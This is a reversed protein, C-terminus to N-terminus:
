QEAAAAAAVPAFSFRHFFPIPGLNALADMHKKTGYGKNQAFGYGPFEEDAQTMQFDRCVKALISAVAISLMTDDGKIVTRVHIIKSKVVENTVFPFPDADGDVLFVFEVGNHDVNHCFFLVIREILKAMGDLTSNRVNKADVDHPLVSEGFWLVGGNEATLAEKAEERQKQTMKKSDKIKIADIDAHQDVVAAAVVLPGALAGRGAEDIGVVVRRTAVQPPLSRVFENEANRNMPKKNRM